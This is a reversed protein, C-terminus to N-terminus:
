QDKPSDKPLNLMAAAMQEDEPSLQAEHIQEKRKRLQWVLGALGILLLAFPGYWLLITYRKM